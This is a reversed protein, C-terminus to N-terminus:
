QKKDALLFRIKELLHERKFPKVIYWDAKKDMAEEFDTGMSKATLMIVPIQKTAPNDKIRDLVELGSIEPMDIDLLILDPKESIVKELAYSGDSATIIDFDKDEKQLILKILMSVELDDDVVLIKVKDM